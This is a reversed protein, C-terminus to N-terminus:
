AIKKTMDVLMWGPRKLNPRRGTEAYGFSEYLAINRKMRANTFLRIEGLEALRAQQEALDLLRIGFGKGQFAPAVAVSFILLHDPEKELVLLGVLELGLELLWVGGAAIHPAYDATVPLPPAGLAETWPRYAAETLAVVADLDASAAQRIRAGSVEQSAANVM